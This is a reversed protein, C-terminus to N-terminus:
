WGGSAGGGRFGGGGGGFGSFGGGGGLGGGGFGGGLGRGLMPGMWLPPVGVGFGAGRARRGRSLLVLFLVVLAIVVTGSGGRRSAGRTNLAAYDGGLAAHIAEVGARVGGYVDGERFKPAIVDRIIRGSVSDTLRDELQRAVEIRLKRDNKSVVLLAANDAGEAGMKWTRGVNLAFREIPEGGLEPVILLAVENKSGVKYSEMLAELAREQEATLMGALDTVWGDNKPVALGQFLALAVAGLTQLLGIM